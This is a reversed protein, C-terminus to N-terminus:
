MMNAKGVLGNEIMRQACYSKSTYRDSLVVEDRPHVFLPCSMRSKRVADGEPMLVRHTTSPYYGGSAEQLMDGINIVLNGHEAPVTKWNGQKDRAQLGNETGATLVTILDIDEHAAARVAGPEEDGTIPPFYNIRFLHTTANEIMKTLPESFKVDEPANDNLWTLVNGAIKLLEHYM